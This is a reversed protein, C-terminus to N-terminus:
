GRQLPFRRTTDIWDTVSPANARRTFIWERQITLNIIFLLTEAIVKALLINAPLAATLIKIGMYSLGCSAAVLLLYRPLLIRHPEDSLFVATRVAPYNFFVCAIRAGAQSGIISGTERFLFYFALNDLVATLIGIMTFRLLVYGIRM